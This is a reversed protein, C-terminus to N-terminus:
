IKKNDTLAVNLYKKGGKEEIFDGIKYILLYFPNSRTNEKKQFM